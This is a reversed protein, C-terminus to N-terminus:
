LQNPTHTRSTVAEYSPLLGIAGLHTFIQFRGPSFVLKCKASFNSSHSGFMSAHQCLMHMATAAGSENHAEM